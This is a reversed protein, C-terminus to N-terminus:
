YFLPNSPSVMDLISLLTEKKTCSKISLNKFEGLKQIFLLVGSLKEVFESFIFSDFFTSLLFRDYRLERLNNAEEPSLPGSIPSYLSGDKYIRIGLFNM